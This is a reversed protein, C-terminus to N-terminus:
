GLFSGKGSHKGLLAFNNALMKEIHRRVLKGAMVEAGDGSLNQLCALYSQRNHLYNSATIFLYDIQLNM